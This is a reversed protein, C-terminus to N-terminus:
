QATSFPRTEFEAATADIEAEPLARKNEELWQATQATIRKPRYHGTLLAARDRQSLGSTKLANNISGEDVGQRRAAAVDGYFREWLKFRSEEMSRYAQGVTGADPAGRLVETKFIRESDREDRAFSLTKYKIADKFDFRELRMGTVEATIETAPDLKRGLGPAEDRFSPIIRNRLRYSTGPEIATALHAAMKRWKVDESDQPNFIEKGRETKNRAVDAMAGALMQENTFPRLFEAFAATSKDFLEKENNQFVAVFPDVMYSYPSLYSWNLYGVETGEHSYFVLQSNESWPPLFRRIDDETDKSMGMAYRSLAGLAAGGGIISSMGVVRKGGSKQLEVNGSHLDKAAYRMGHYSTRFMEYAFTMFPGVLPQRRFQQVWKPVMSYTPYTNRIREAAESKVKAEDWEPFAKRLTAKDAEWGVMKGMEDPLRYARFPANIVKRGVRKLGTAELDVMEPDRLGADKLSERLERAPAAENVLGHKTADLYYEQWQKDNGVIDALQAKGAKLYDKFNFHGNWVNFSPNGGLNRMQTLLSGITKATKSAATLAYWGKLFINDTVDSKGFEEFAKKIPESTRLGNLPAMTSSEPAAIQHEYGLPAKGEEFLFRDLGATRVENLFKQDGLYRALKAVSRQYNVVPDKYEGMLARMEPTIDTRKMFQTLDKAGLKGKRFMKDIGADSWDAILERLKADAPRYFDEVPGAEGKDAAVEQLDRAIQERVPGLLNEPINKAYKPDDFIRYSRTLYVGKNAEITAALKDNGQAKLDTVIEDSLRDVHERLKTVPERLRADLIMPDAREQLVFNIQQITEKPVDAIGHTLYRSYPIEFIDRLSRELDRSAYASERTEAAVKGSRENWKQFVEQPLNGAATFWKQWFTKQALPGALESLKTSSVAETPAFEAAAAAGVGVPQGTGQTSPRIESGTPELVPKETTHAVQVGGAPESPQVLPKDVRVLSGEKDKIFQIAELEPALERIVAAETVPGVAKGQEVLVEATLRDLARQGPAIDIPPEQQSQPHHGHPVRIVEKPPGKAAHKGALGAFTATLGTGTVHKAAGETDGAKIAEAAAKAQEPITSAMHVAFGGAIARQALKPLAGLGLTALGLPSTFSQVTEAIAQQTGAIVKEATSPKRAVGLSEIIRERASEQTEGPKTTFEAKLVDVAEALTQADVGKIWQAIAPIPQTVDGWFDKTVQGISPAEGEVPTAELEDSNLQGALNRVTLEEPSSAPKLTLSPEFELPTEARPEVRPTATGAIIRDFDAKFDPVTLYQPYKEGIRRTLEDDPVEAYVPYKAKVKEIVTNM